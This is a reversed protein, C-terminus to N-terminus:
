FFRRVFWVLSWVISVALFIIMPEQQPLWGARTAMWWAPTVFMYVHAATLGGDRYADAEHEDIKRWWAWTIPPAAITWIIITAGAIVPSVPGNSFLLGPGEDAIGLMIGLPISIAAMLALLNRASRVRPAVPESEARPWFRWIGYCALTILGIILALIVGGSFPLYGREVAVDLFGALTGALFVLTVAGAFGFMARKVLISGDSPQSATKDFEPKTM